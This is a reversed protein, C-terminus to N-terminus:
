AGDTEDGPIAGPKPQTIWVMAGSAALSAALAVILAGTTQFAEIAIALVTCFTALSITGGLAAHLTAIASDPGLRQHLTAAIMVFAVPITILIGSVTPGLRDALLSIVAVLTGALM